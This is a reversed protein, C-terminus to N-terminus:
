VNTVPFLSTGENIAERREKGNCVLGDSLGDTLHDVMDDLWEVLPPHKDRGTALKRYTTLVMRHATSITQLSSLPNFIKHFGDSHIYSFLWSTRLVSPALLLMIRPESEYLHSFQVSYYVNRPKKDSSGSSNRQIVNSMQIFFTNGYKSISGSHCTLSTICWLNCFYEPYSYLLLLM